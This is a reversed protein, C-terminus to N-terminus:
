LPCAPHDSRALVPRSCDRCAGHASPLTIITEDATAILTPPVALGLM